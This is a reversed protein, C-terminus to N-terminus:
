PRRTRRRPPRSGTPPDDVRLRRAAASSAAGMAEDERRGAATLGEYYEITAAELERAASQRATARLWGELVRSRSRAEVRATRDMRAVLDRPLSVSIKVRRSQM